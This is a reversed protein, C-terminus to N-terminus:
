HSIVAAKASKGSISLASREYSSVVNNINELASITQKELEPSHETASIVKSWRNILGTAMSLGEVLTKIVEDKNPYKMDKIVARFNATYVKAVSTTEKINEELDGKFKSQVSQILGGEGNLATNFKELAENYSPQETGSM